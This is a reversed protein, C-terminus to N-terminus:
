GVHKTHRGLAIVENDSSRRIEVTAFALTRGLKVCESDITITEGPRAARLFSVSLDTSVGPVARENAMIAMTSVTDVITSTLGGHLTGQGNLHEECVKMECRVRNTGLSVLDVKNLVSDFCKRSVIAKWLGRAADIGIKAMKFSDKLHTM